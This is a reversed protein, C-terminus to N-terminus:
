VEGEESFKGVRGLPEDNEYEPQYIAARAAQARASGVKGCYRWTQKGHSKTVHYLYPGCGSIMKEQFCGGRSPHHLSSHAQPSMVRLNEIRDDSPNGNVHHVYENSRLERGLHQEM